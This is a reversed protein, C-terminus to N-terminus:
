EFEVLYKINVQNDKYVIAEDNMVGSYNTNGNMTSGYAWTSDYGNVPYNISQYNRYSPVYFKGMAMEVFFMFTRSNRSSGYRGTAYQLAKTGAGKVLTGDIRHVPASYTGCGFQKGSVHASNPPRTILGFKLLSLYNESGSGHYGSIVNGIKSGYNEFAEQMAKIKVSWMKKPRMTYCNHMTSKTKNYYDFIKNIINIDTVIDLETNFVQEEPIIIKNDSKVTNKATALSAQLGDLLSNQTQVKSMDSWFDRLELRNRGINQPISMLYNRTFEMLKESYDNTYICDAIKILTDRASDITNQGVLGLATQFQGKDYNYTIQNNSFSTINHINQDAFYKILEITERSKSAVVIQKTAIDKVATATVTKSTPAIVKSSAEDIIDIECYAIEGNRGSRKKDASKSDVFKSAEYQSSFTKTQSQGSDGIRGWTCVVSFDDFETCNWFKNNNNVPDSKVLHIKRIVNAM